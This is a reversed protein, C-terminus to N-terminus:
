SIFIMDKFYHGISIFIQKYLMVDTSVEGVPELDDPDMLDSDPASWPDISWGCVTRVSDAWEADM